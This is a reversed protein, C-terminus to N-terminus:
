RNWRPNYKKVLLTEIIKPCDIYQENHTVFWNVELSDLKENEIERLWYNKRSKGDRKGKVLRGKIGDKRIFLKGDSTIRGSIGIYVLERQKNKLAYICYIGAKDKPANCIKNLNDVLKFIFSGSNTYKKLEIM